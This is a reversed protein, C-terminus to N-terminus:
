LIHQVADNIFESQAQLLFGSLASLDERMDLAFISIKNSGAEAYIQAAITKSQNFSGSHGPVFLIPAAQWVETLDPAKREEGWPEQPHVHVLRYRRFVEPVETQRGHRAFHPELTIERYMPNEIFEICENPEIRSHISYYGFSLFTFVFGSFRFVAHISVQFISSVM